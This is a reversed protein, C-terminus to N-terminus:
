AGNKNVNKNRDISRDIQLTWKPLHITKQTTRKEVGDRPADLMEM